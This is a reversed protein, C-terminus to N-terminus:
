SSRECGWVQSALLDASHYYSMLKILNNVELPKTTENLLGILSKAKPRGMAPAPM